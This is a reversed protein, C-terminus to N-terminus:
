AENALVRPPLPQNCYVEHIQLVDLDRKRNYDAGESTDDGIGPDQYGYVDGANCVLTLHIRTEERM